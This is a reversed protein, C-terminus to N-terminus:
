EREGKAAGDDPLDPGACRTHTGPIRANFDMDEDTMHRLFDTQAFSRAILDRNHEYTYEELHVAIDGHERGNIDLVRVPTGCEFELDGLSLLKMRQRRKTKVYMSREKLDYVLSWATYDGMSVTELIDWAAQVAEATSSPKKRRLMSAAQAFRAMSATGSPVPRGGGFGRCQRLASISAAYTNNTLVTVPLDDGAHVVSRGELFEIVACAGSSDCVIYHIPAPARPSIRIRTDTAIVEGVTACNDLQYQIWELEGLAARSDAQPYHTPALWMLGVALGAENIGGHPMERGYQNVTVSGYRSTWRAPNSDAVAEKVVGRKNVIIMGDDVSWDYNNGFVRYGNRDLLFTTCSVAPRIAAVVVM